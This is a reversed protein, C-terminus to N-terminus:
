IHILSLDLLYDGMGIVFMQEPILIGRERAEKIVGLALMDENTIIADPLDLTNFLKKAMERGSEEGYRGQCLYADTEKLGFSQLADLFAYKSYNKTQESVFGQLFAINRRGKKYLYRDRICM